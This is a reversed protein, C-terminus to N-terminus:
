IKQKWRKQPGGISSLYAYDWHLIPYAKDADDGGRSHPGDRGRYKVCFACWSRFQVHGGLVHRERDAQTPMLPSTPAAPAWEEHTDEEEADAAEAGDYVENPYVDIESNPLQKM